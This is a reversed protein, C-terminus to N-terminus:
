RRGFIADWQQETQPTIPFTLLLGDVPDAKVKWGITQLTRVNGAAHIEHEKGNTDIM